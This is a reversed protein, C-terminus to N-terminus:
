RKPALGADKRIREVHNRQYPSHRAAESPGVGARFADLLRDRVDSRAEELVEEAERFRATAADLADLAQDLDAFDQSQDPTQSAM